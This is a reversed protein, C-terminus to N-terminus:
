LLNQVQEQLKPSDIPYIRLLRFFCVFLCVHIFVHIFGLVGKFHDPLSNDPFHGM